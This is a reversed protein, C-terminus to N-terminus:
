HLQLCVYVCFLIRRTTGIYGSVSLCLARIRLESLRKLHQEKIGVHSFHFVLPRLSLRDGSMFTPPLRYFHPNGQDHPTLPSPHIYPEQLPLTNYQVESLRSHAVSLPSCTESSFLSSRHGQKRQKNPTVLRNSVGM